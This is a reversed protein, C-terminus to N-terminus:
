KTNRTPSRSFPNKISNSHTDFPFERVISLYMCAFIAGLFAIGDGILQKPQFNEYDAILQSGSTLVLGFIGIIVGVIDIKSVKKGTIKNWIVMILPQCNNLLYARTLTTFTLAITWTATWMASGISAAIVLLWLKKDKFISRQEKPMKYLQILALPIFFFLLTQVRWQSVLLPKSQLEPSYMRYAAGGSAISLMGIFLGIMSFRKQFPTSFLYSPPPSSIPVYSDIMEEEFDHETELDVIKEQDSQNILYSENEEKKLPFEDLDVSKPNSIDEEELNSNSENWDNLDRKSKEKNAKMFLSIDSKIGDGFSVNSSSVSSTM